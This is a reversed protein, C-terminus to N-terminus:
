YGNEQRQHNIENKKYYAREIEEWTFGLMLGLSLYDYVLGEYEEPEEFNCEKVELVRAFVDNFQHTVSFSYRKVNEDVFWWSVDDMNLEIGLELVFHLGDVYEELLPNRVESIGSCDCYMCDMYEHGGNGEADEQVMEYNLDGTGKCVECQVDEEIRPMQDKSWFKFGRWENACEGLEVLLALVLKNFRDQENYNIRDRLIKQTEFLKTLNM